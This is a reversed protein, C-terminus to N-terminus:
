GWYVLKAPAPVCRAFCFGVFRTNLLSRYQRATAQWQALIPVLPPTLRISQSVPGEGADVADAGQEITRITRATMLQRQAYMFPATVGILLLANAIPLFFAPVQYHSFCRTVM